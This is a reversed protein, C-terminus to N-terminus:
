SSEKDIGDFYKTLYYDFNELLIAFLVAENSSINKRKGDYKIYQYGFDDIVDYMEIFADAFNNDHLLRFVLSACYSQRASIPRIFEANSLQYISTYTDYVEENSYSSEVKTSAEKIANHMKKLLSIPMTNKLTISSLEDMIPQFILCIEYNSVSVKPSLAGSCQSLSQILESSRKNSLCNECDNQNNVNDTKFIRKLFM